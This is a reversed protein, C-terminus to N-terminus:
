RRTQGTCCLLTEWSTLTLAHFYWSSLHARSISIALWRKPSTTEWHSLQRWAENLISNSTSYASVLISAVRIDSLASELSRLAYGDERKAFCNMIMTAQNEQDKGEKFEVAWTVRADGRDRQDQTYRMGDWILAVKGTRLHLIRVINNSSVNVMWNGADDVLHMSIADVSSEQSSYETEQVGESLTFPWEIYQWSHLKPRDSSLNREVIAARHAALSLEKATYEYLTKARGLPLVLGCHALTRIWFSTRTM